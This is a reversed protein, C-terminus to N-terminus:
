DTAKLESLALHLAPRPLPLFDCPAMIFSLLSLLARRADLRDRIVGVDTEQQEGAFSHSNLIWFSGRQNRLARGHRRLIASELLM